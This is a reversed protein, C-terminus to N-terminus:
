AAADDHRAAGAQASAPAYEVICGLDRFGLRAYLREAMPTAQLSATSCGRERATHLLGATVATGLGQRRAEPLTSINFIGCDGDAVYALGTAVVRGDRRAAVVDFAEEGVGALLGAPLGLAELYTLYGRWGLRELAIVTPLPGLEALVASMARTTESVAYGRGELAERMPADHEQTWAAFRGVGARRYTTEMADLARARAGGGLGLGLVANNYVEREPGEPFVAVAVGPHRVVAAGATGRAYAEWSALLTTTARHWLTADDPNLMGTV